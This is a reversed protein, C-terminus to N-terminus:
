TRTSPGEPLGISSNWGPQAALVAAARRLSAFAARTMRAVRMLDPAQGPHQALSALTRPLDVRGDARLPVRAAPPLTMTVPDVVARVVLVPVSAIRVIALSEMDVAVAGITAIAAKAAATAAPQDVGAIEGGM